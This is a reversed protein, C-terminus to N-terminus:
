LHVTNKINNYSDYDLYSQSYDFFAEVYNELSIIDYLDIVIMSYEQSIIIEKCSRYLLGRM